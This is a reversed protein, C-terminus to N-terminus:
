KVRPIREDIVTSLKTVTLSLQHVSDTLAKLDKEMALLHTERVEKLEKEINTVRDSLRIGDKESKDQPRKFYNYIGFITGLITIAFLVSTTTIPITM